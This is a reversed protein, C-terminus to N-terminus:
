DAEPRDASLVLKGAVSAIQGAVIVAGSRLHRGFGKSRIAHRIRSREALRSLVHWRDIQRLTSM